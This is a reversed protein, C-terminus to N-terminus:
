FTKYSSELCDIRTLIMPRAASTLSQLSIVWFVCPICVVIEGIDRFIETLM